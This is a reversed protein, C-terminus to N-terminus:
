SKLTFLLEFGQFNMQFLLKIKLRSVQRKVYNHNQLNVELNPTVCGLIAQRIM